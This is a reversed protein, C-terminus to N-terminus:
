LNSREEEEEEAFFVYYPPLSSIICMYYIVHLSPSSPHLSSKQEENEPDPSTCISYKCIWELPLHLLISTPNKLLFEQLPPLSSSSRDRLFSWARTLLLLAIFFFM